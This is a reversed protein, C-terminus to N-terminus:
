HYNLIVGFPLIKVGSKKTVLKHFTESVPESLSEIYILLSALNGTHRSCSKGKM